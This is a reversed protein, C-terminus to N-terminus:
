PEDLIRIFEFDVIDQWPPCKVEESLPRSRTSFNRRVGPLPQYWNLEPVSIQALTVDERGERRWIVKPWLWKGGPVILVRGSGEEVSAVVPDGVPIEGLRFTVRFRNDYLVEASQTPSAALQASIDRDLELQCPRPPPARSALWGFREGPRPQEQKLKGDVCIRFPTWLVNAGAEFRARTKSAPNPDWVREVIRQLRERRRGAQARTSGWPHPSIYRLIRLVMALQVLPDTVATSLKDAALIFTGPPAQISFLNLYTSVKLAHASNKLELM